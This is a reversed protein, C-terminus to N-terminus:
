VLLLRLPKAAVSSAQCVVRRVSERPLVLASVALFRAEFSTAVVSLRAAQVRLRVM